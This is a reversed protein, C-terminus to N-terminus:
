IERITEKIKMGFHRGGSETRAYVKDGKKLQAVSISGDPGVLKVTEANQLIATYRRKDSESEILLLPRQEIKCRGIAVTRVNGDKDAIQVHDGSKLESLYRTGGGPVMTYAHVAGANVRFPRAEVYGVNESESQILYLCSSQSGVLMGEGPVMMSCTDVCVRDGMGVNKVDTITVIEFDLKESSSILDKMEAIDSPNSTVIGDVGKELTTLFVEADKVSSACAFVMTKSDFKAIMNELPIVTWDSTDLVVVDTKGALDLVAKQDKPDKMSVLKGSVAGELNGNDNFILKLNGFTNFDADEPRVIAHEIGAELASIVIEKRKEKDDPVDARIWIQKTM